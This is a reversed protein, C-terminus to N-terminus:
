RCRQTAANITSSTSRCMADDSSYRVTEYDSLAEKFILFGWRQIAPTEAMATMETATTSM